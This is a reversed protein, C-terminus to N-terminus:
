FTFNLWHRISPASGARPAEGKPRRVSATVTSRVLSFLVTNHCTSFKSRDVTFRASWLVWFSQWWHSEWLKLTCWIHKHSWWVGRQPLKCHEGSGRAPKLPGVESPFSLSPSPFSPSHSSPTSPFLLSPSSPLSPSDRKRLNRSKGRIPYLIQVDCISTLM